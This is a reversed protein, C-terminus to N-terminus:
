RAASYRPPASRKKPPILPSENSNCGKQRLIVPSKAAHFRFFLFIRKRCSVPFAKHKEQKKSIIHLLYLPLSAKEHYLVAPAQGDAKMVSFPLNGYACLDSPPRSLWFWATKQAASSQPFDAAATKYYRPCKPPQVNGRFFDTPQPPIPRYASSM